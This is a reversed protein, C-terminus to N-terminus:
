PTRDSHWYLALNAAVIDPPNSTIGLVIRMRAGFARPEPQGPFDAANIQGALGLSNGARDLDSSSSIISAGLPPLTIINSFLFGTNLLETTFIASAVSTLIAVIDPNIFALGIESSIWGATDVLAQQMPIPSSQQVPTSTLAGEFGKIGSAAVPIVPYTRDVTAQFGDLVSTVADTFDCWQEDFDCPADTPAPYPLNFNPTFNPM